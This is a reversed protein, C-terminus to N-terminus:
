GGRRKGVLAQRFRQYVMRGAGVGSDRALRLWMARIPQRTHVLSWRPCQWWFNVAINFDKSRVYHWYGAPMYLADGPHIETTHFKANGFRPFRNLDPEAIDIPSQLENGQYGVPPQYVRASQDPAYLRISKHGAVMCLLNDAPDFHLNSVAGAYGVWLNVEYLASQQILAPITLDLLLEPFWPSRQAPRSSWINGLALYYRQRPPNERIASMFEPFPIVSVTEDYRTVNKDDLVQVCVERAGLRELLTDATWHRAPWDATLGRIVVPTRTAVYRKKFEDPTPADIREIEGLWNRREHSAFASKGSEGMTEEISTM